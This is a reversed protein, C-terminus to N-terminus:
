AESGLNTAIPSSRGADKLSGKRLDATLARELLPRPTQVGLRQLCSILVVAVRGEKEARLAQILCSVLGEREGEREESVLRHIAEASAFRIEPDSDGLAMPLNALTEEDGVKGLAEIVPLLCRQAHFAATLIELARPSRIEGLAWAAKSQVPASTTTAFLEILAEVASARRAVGMAHAAAAAVEPQDSALRAEFAACFPENNTVMLCNGAAARIAPHNDRAMAVGTLFSITEGDEGHRALISGIAQLALVKDVLEVLGDEVLAVLEGLADPGEAVKEALPHVPPPTTLRPDIQELQKRVMKARTKAANSKTMM